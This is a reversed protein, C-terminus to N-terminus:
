STVSSRRKRPWLHHLKGRRGEQWYPGAFRPEWRGRMAWRKVATWRGTHWATWWDQHAGEALRRTPAETVYLDAPSRYIIHAVEEPPRLHTLLADGVDAQRKDCEVLWVSSAPNTAPRLEWRWFGHDKEDAHDILVSARHECLQHGNPWVWWAKTDYILITNGTAAANYGLAKLRASIAAITHASNADSRKEM